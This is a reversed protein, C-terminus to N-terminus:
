LLLGRGKLEMIERKIAQNLKMRYYINLDAADVISSIINWFEEDLPSETEHYMYIQFSATEFADKYAPPYTPSHDNKDTNELVKEEWAFSQYNVANALKEIHTSNDVGYYFTSVLPDTFFSDPSLEKKLVLGELTRCRSLAVYTQGAAFARPIDIIAHDFTLGQSKHITIAWAPKLPFQRFTGITKKRVQGTAADYEYRFNDWSAPKVDIMTEGVRVGITEEYLVAITGLTGNCYKGDKDNKVFMVQAGSKLTLRRATPFCEVPFEGEVEADYSLAGGKTNELRECNIADAQKKQAVLTIYGSNEPISFEPAYCANLTNCDSWTINGVRAKNLIRVFDPNDQRYVKDLCITEFGVRKIANSNFFFYNTGYPEKLIAEDDRTVVPPLQYLDGILLLQVGGFPEKSCRILRIKESIHDMVDARVMSVEDIIIMDLNRVLEEEKDDLIFDNDQSVKGFPCPALGFRCFSHITMANANIAAIGTPALVVVKKKTHEVFNRLFVTKGTGAKGTLFLNHTTKEAIYRALDAAAVKNQQTAKREEWSDVLFQRGYRSHHTWEGKCLLKSGVSAGKLIGCVSFPTREDDSTVSLVSYGNENNCFVVREVQCVIHKLQKTEKYDNM